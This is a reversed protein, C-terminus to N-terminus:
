IQGELAKHGTAVRAPVMKAKETTIMFELKNMGLAQLAKLGVSSYQGKDADAFNFPDKLAIAIFSNTIMIFGSPPLEPLEKMRFAANPHTYTYDGVKRTMKVFNICRKIEKLHSLDEQSGGTLKHVSHILLWYM